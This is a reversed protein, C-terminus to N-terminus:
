YVRYNNKLSFLVYFMLGFNAVFESGFSVLFVIVVLMRGFVDANLFVAILLFLYALLGLIGISNILYFVGTFYHEESGRGSGFLFKYSDETEFLHVLSNFRYGFAPGLQNNEFDYVRTVIFSFYDVTMFLYVVLLFLGLILFYFRATLKEKRLFFFNYSWILILSIFGLSSASMIIAAIILFKVYKDSSSEVAGVAHVNATLYILYVIAFQSFHTPEYFFGTPRYFKLFHADDGADIFSSDIVPLYPINWPVILKFFYFSFFQIVVLLCAIITVVRLINLAKEKNFFRYGAVIAFIFLCYRITSIFEVKYSNILQSIYFILILAFYLLCAKIAGNVIIKRKISYYLAFLLMSFALLFDAYSLREIPTEYISLLPFLVILTTFFTSTVNFLSM